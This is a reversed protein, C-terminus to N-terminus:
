HVSNVQVFDSKEDGVCANSDYNDKHDLLYSESDMLLYVSSGTTEAIIRYECTINRLYSLGYFPSQIQGVTDVRSFYTGGCM